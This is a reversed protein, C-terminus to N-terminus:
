SGRTFILIFIKGRLTKELNFNSEELETQLVEDCILNFYNEFDKFSKIDSCRTFIQGRSKEIISRTSIEFIWDIGNKNEECKSLILKKMKRMGNSFEEKLESSFEEKMKRMGSSFEEKMKRMESSFEEKLESKLENMEEKLENM